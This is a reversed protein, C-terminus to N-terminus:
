PAIYQDKGGVVTRIVQVDKISVPDIDTLDESLVVFDALKGPELTGLVDEQFGAYAAGSTYGRLSEDVTIKQEPYWGEPNMGDRTQRTVGAYIGLIPSLPAVTWDSGFAINVDKDMLSRFAYTGKLVQEGVRNAAWSGDDVVHYPQMSTTIGLAAFRNIAEPTLHQAHEIRLRRDREGSELSIAEYENLMWDNARDGIAHIMLQLGSKDSAHLIERFKVTDAMVVLGSTAPDDRYPDYMWATRSGLSGDMMAKIGGWRLWQNGRGNEEIFAVLREWNTYWPVAYIRLKLQGKKDARLYTQFDEWSCMDHVQTVGQSVAFEMARALAKDMEKDSPEPIVATVLSQAEDKLIGTPEGSFSDRVIIGGPPDPTEASIGALELAKSNALSMHGDLRGVFLPRDGTVADIWHRTPLEGGWLEHDWDGGEIWSGSPVSQVYRDIRHVFEDQSDVDRLNISALQFGGSIFHTHSDMLGPVVFRDALDVIKSSPDKLASIEQNSGVAKIRDGMIAIAEARTGAEVGTWINGNIFITDANENTCGSLILLGTIVARLMVCDM